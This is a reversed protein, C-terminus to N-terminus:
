NDPKYENNFSVALYDGRFSFKICVVGAKAEKPSMVPELTPLDYTQIFTGHNLKKIAADLVLVVGNILGIVLFSSEPSFQLCTAQTGLNKSCILAKKEMDWLRLTEDDGVSAIIPETPYVAVAIKKQTSQM